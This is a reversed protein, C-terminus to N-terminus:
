WCVAGFPAAAGASDNGRAGHLVRFDFAVADGPQMTWERIDMAEADPDPVPMYSDEDPYFQDETVLAGAVGPVGM